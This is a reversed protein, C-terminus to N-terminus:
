QFTYFLFLFSSYFAATKDKQAFSSTYHFLTFIQFATSCVLVRARLTSLLVFLSEVGGHLCYSFM